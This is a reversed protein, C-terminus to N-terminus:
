KRGRWKDVYFFLEAIGLTTLAVIDANQYLVSATGDSAVGLSVMILALLRLTVRAFLAYNM